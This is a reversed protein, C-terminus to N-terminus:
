SFIEGIIDCVIGLASAFNDVANGFHGAAKNGLYGVEEVVQRAFEGDSLRASHTTTGFNCLDRHFSTPGKHGHHRRQPGKGYIAYGLKSM